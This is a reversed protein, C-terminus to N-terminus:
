PKIFYRCTLSTTSTTTLLIEGIKWKDEAEFIIQDGADLPIKKQSDAGGDEESVQVNVSGDDSIIYGVRGFAGLDKKVRIRQPSAKSVEVSDSLYDGM